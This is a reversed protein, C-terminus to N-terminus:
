FPPIRANVSRGPCRSNQSLNETTKRLGDLCIRPYYRSYAVVAERTIREVEDIMRGNRSIYGLWLVAFMVKGYTKTEHHEILSMNKSM